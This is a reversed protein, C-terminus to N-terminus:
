KVDNCGGTLISVTKEIRFNFHGDRVTIILSVGGFDIGRIEHELRKIVTPPICSIKNGQTVIPVNSCGIPPLGTIKTAEDVSLAKLTEKM